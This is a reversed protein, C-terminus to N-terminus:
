HVPLCRAPGQTPDYWPLCAYGTASGPLAPCASAAPPRTVQIMAAAGQSLVAGPKNRGWLVAASDAAQQEAEYLAEDALAGQAICPGTLPLHM